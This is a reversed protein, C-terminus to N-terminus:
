IILNTRQFCLEMLLLSSNPSFYLPHNILKPLIVTALLKRSEIWFGTKPKEEIAYIGVDKQM